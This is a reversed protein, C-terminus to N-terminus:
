PSTMVRLRCRGGQVQIVDRWHPNDKFVDQLRRSDYEAEALVTEERLWEDGRDWAEYLIRVIQAQKRRFTFKRDHIRLWAGDLGCQVPGGVAEAYLPRPDALAGLRVLNLVAPSVKAVSVQKDLADLVPVIRSVTPLTIDSAISWGSTLVLAPPAGRRLGLERRVQDRVEAEGLRIAFLVPINKRLGLRLPGLDWLLGDILPVPRFSAPMGLLHAILGALRSLNLNWTRLREPLLPIYGDEPHLYCYGAGEYDIEVLATCDGDSLQVHIMELKPGPSFLGVAILVEAEAGAQEALMDATTSPNAYDALSMLLRLGAVSVEKM